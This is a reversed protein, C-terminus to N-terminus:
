IVITKRHDGKIPPPPLYAISDCVWAGIVVNMEFFVTAYTKIM